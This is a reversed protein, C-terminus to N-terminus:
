KSTDIISNSNAKTTLLYITDIKIKQAASIIDEKKAAIFQEKLEKLTDHRNNISLELDYDIVSSANDEITKLRNIIGSRTNNIEEDSIDGSQVAYLQERIIKLADEFKDHNIGARIFML